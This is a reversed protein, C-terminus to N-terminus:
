NNILIASLHESVPHDIDSSSGMFIRCTRKAFPSIDASCYSCISEKRMRSTEDNLCVSVFSFGSTISFGTSCSVGGATSGSFGSSASSTSASSIATMSGKDVSVSGSRVVTFSIAVAIAFASSGTEESVSDNAISTVSSVSV